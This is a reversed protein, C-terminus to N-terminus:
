LLLEFLRVAREWHESSPNTVRTDIITFSRALAVSLGGAVEPLRTETDIALTVDLQPRATLHELIPALEIEEDIKEFEHIREQVGKTISLDWPQLIDRGNSKARAQGILLMEYIQNFVFDSYRRLDSKDVDIGAAVRFFREFKPVAM